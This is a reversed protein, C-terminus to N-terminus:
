PMHPVEAFIEYNNLTAAQQPKLQSYDFDDEVELQGIKLVLLGSCGTV